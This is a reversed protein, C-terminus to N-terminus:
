PPGATSPPPCSDSSTATSSPSPSTCTRPSTPPVPARRASPSSSPTSCPHHKAPSAAPNAPATAAAPCTWAPPATAWDTLLDLEHLRHTLAMAAVRWTQKATLIRDIGANALSQALVSARPMLFAAAFRNAEQEADPGHPVRHESHLVLHGLEHTADFRGREGTKSTNLLVYPTQRWVFSFADVAACDAALSDVRVGHAELLRVLNGAARRRSGLLGPRGRGGDGPRPHAPVPCRTRAPPITARDVRRAHPRYARRQPRHRAARRHAQHAGPLQHRRGPHRRRRRGAPVRGARRARRGAPEPHGPQAGAPRERLRVPQACEGPNRRGTPCPELGAAKPRAHAPQADVGGVQRLDRAGSQTPHFLRDIAMSREVSSEFFLRASSAAQWTTTATREASSRRATSASCQSM